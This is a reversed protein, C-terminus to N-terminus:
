VSAFRGGLGPTGSMADGVPVPGCDCGAAWSIPIKSCALDCFILLGPIRFYPYFFLYMCTGLVCPNVEKRARM